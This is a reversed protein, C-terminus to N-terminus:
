RQKAEATKALDIALPVGPLDPFAPERVTLQHPLRSDFEIRLLKDKDAGTARSSLAIARVLALPTLLMSFHNAAFDGSFHGFTLGDPKAVKFIHNAALLSGAGTMNEVLITPHGPIYKPMHRSLMRALADYGGGPSFGVIIRITKGEYFNSQAIGSRATFVTLAVLLAVSLITKTM